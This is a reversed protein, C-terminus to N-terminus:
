KYKSVSHWDKELVKMGEALKRDWEELAMGALMSDPSQVPLFGDQLKLYGGPYTHNYVSQIVTAHSRFSSMVTHM